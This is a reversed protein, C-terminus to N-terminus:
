AGAESAVAEADRVRLRGSMLQPLLADRTAALTGNEAISATVLDLLPALKSEAFTARTGDWALDLHDFTAKTITDFVSGHAVTKARETARLISFYLLSPPLTDPRFGYCSQNFSAPRALRAVEGVTGRATLIVSGAPLPKAKTGEVAAPTIKEITTLVVRGPASTIDRASIWLRDGGVWYDERARAPTGGLIPDLLTSMSVRPWSTAISDYTLAALDEAREALATNAAIKDDLAGVVEAIAQQESMPPLALRTKKAAGVNFHQQVAGVLASSISHTAASNMYYSLWRADVDPGPRTIVLDACNSLPLSDPIVATTGPTGTRVTVVDGPRLESKSIRENFEPSIFRVDTLDIRHSLINQSRLFPVGAIEYHRAMTGVFGVTLEAVQGLAVERWESM